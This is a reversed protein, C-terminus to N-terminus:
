MSNMATEPYARILQFVSDVYNIGERDRVSESEFLLDIPLKNYVNRKSVSAADHNTLLLTIINHNTGICAHHLLTNHDFDTACLCTSSQLRGILYEVVKPSKHHQCAVHMPTMGRIDFSTIASPNGKVLLKISGLTANDRLAVHLPLQGSEDPSHM